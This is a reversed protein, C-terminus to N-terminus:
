QWKPTSRKDKRRRASKKRTLTTDRDDGTVGVSGVVPGAHPGTVSEWSGSDRGNSSRGRAHHSKQNPGYEEELINLLALLVAPNSGMSERFTAVLTTNVLPGGTALRRRLARLLLDLRTPERVGMKLMLGMVHPFEVDSIAPLQELAVHFAELSAGSQM